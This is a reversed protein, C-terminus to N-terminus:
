YKRKPTRRTRNNIVVYLLINHAPFLGFWLMDSVSMKATLKTMSRHSIVPLHVTFSQKERYPSVMKQAMMSLFEEFRVTGSCGKVFQSVVMKIEEKKPEFGLARM